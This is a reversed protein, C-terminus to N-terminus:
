PAGIPQHAVEKWSRGEWHAISGASGAAWLDDPAPGWVAALDGVFDIAEITEWTSGDFHHLDFSDTM